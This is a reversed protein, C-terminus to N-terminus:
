RRRLKCEKAVHFTKEVRDKPVIRVVCKGKTTSFLPETCGNEHSKKLQDRAEQGTLCRSRFQEYRARVTEYSIEEENDAEQKHLMGNVVNHLNYVFRSFSDRNDFSHNSLGAEIINKPFNDRCYRCPLVKGIRLIFQAYDKKQQQTPCTPYNFSIVHLTNWVLPGWISTQMGDSSKYDIDEFTESM